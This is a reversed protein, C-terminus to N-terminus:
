TRAKRLRVVNGEAPPKPPAIIERLLAAWLELAERKEDTYQHLNYVKTIGPRAHALVAEGVAEPVKLRSLNSRVSRRIDHNVWDELVVRKPDNGREKAIRRLEELMKADITAKVKTGIHIPKRGKTTSFLFDGHEFRPLSDLVKIMETTLPVLHSRARRGDAGSNRGKMRVAPILWERKALDFEPWSARAVENLRLGSLILLKYLPGIPYSKLADAAPTKSKQNPLTKKDAVTWTDAVTWLARLETDSLTRDRINKEGIINAPKIDAAVNRDLGYSGDLAWSLMSKIIALQFRAEEPATRKKLKILTLVDDRTIDTVARNGWTSIFPDRITREAWKARRQLPHKPDPGIVRDKIFDEAMMEFTVAQKRAEERKQREEEARPDKGHRILEIWQKARDRAKALGITGVAEIERRTYHPSGPFRAALIYSAHGKDSVRVGFGSVWTDMVDYRKGPEAPTKALKTVGKDTLEERRSTPWEKDAPTKNAPSTKAIKVM